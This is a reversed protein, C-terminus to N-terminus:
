FRISFIPVSRLKILFMFVPVSRFAGPFVARRVKLVFPFNPVSWSRIPSMLYRFYSNTSLFLFSSFQPMSFGSRVQVSRFPRIGCKLVESTSTHFFQFLVQRVLIFSNNSKLLLPFMLFPGFEELFCSIDSTDIMLIFLFLFQISFTRHRIISFGSRVQVSWFFSKKKKQVKFVFLFDSFSSILIQFCM